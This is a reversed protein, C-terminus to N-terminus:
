NVRKYMLDSRIITKNNCNVPLVESDHLLFHDFVLAKGKEVFSKFLIESEEAFRTWDSRDFNEKSLGSLYQNDLIFRTSGFDIDGELYLVLTKLSRYNETPKYSGDYHPVLLGGSNYRIFRFLPNVGVFEWNSDIEGDTLTDGNISFDYGVIPLLRNYIVKSILDSFVSLRYSGINDGLKYNSAIGDLGVAQWDFRNIENLISNIESEKLFDRIEIVCHNVNDNLYHFEPIVSSLNDLLVDEKINVCNIFNKTNTDM